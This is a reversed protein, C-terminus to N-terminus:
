LGIDAYFAQLRSFGSAKLTRSVYTEIRPVHALYQPKGDRIALRIFIGLIKTNRQLAMLAYDSHFKEQNFGIDQSKARLYAAITQAEVEPAITVRADQALSALDYAAPGWLADQFDLVGIRDDGSRDARWVLNPSHYDRLVLGYTSPDLTAFLDDWCAFFEARQAESASRGLRHPLYWDLALSVEIMLADRDYVPIDWSIDGAQIYKPIHASQIKALLGAALEYRDAVLLGDDGLFSGTGLHELVLFNEDLDRHLIEPASFGKERLAMGIAVFPHVTPTTTRAVDRYAKGNWVPPGAPSFRQDMVILPANGNNDIWEYVRPSADGAFPHRLAAGHGCRQLFARLRLTRDIRAAAHEPCVIMANRGDGDHNIEISICNSPMLGGAKEAWEILAIGTQLAEDLGLEDLEHPDNLRYLDFHAVPIRTEYAQVLTFTPSPVDLNPDDAFSRILARCLTTKGAGVDGVLAVCDGGILARSLDNGLRKTAAEDALHVTFTPM